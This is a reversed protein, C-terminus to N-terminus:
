HRGYTGRCKRFTRKWKAFTNKVHLDYLQRKADGYAEDIFLETHCIVSRPLVTAFVDRTHRTQPTNIATLFQRLVQPHTAVDAFTITDFDFHNTGREVFPVTRDVGNVHTWGHPLELTDLPENGSHTYQVFTNQASCFGEICIKVNTEAQQTM